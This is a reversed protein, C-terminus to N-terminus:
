EAHGAEGLAGARGREYAKQRVRRIADEVWEISCRHTRIGRDLTLWRFFEDRADHSTSLESGLEAMQEYLELEERLHRLRAQLLAIIADDDLSDAFFLQSIVQSRWVPEEVPKSLWALFEKRGGETIAYVKRNPRDMQEVVERSIHGQEHLRTLTRYIQNQRAPWFHAASADFMKKLDYGTRPERALYGLLIHELAM